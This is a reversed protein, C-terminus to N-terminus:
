QKKWILVLKKGFVKEFLDKKKNFAQEELTSDNETLCEVTIKKIGVKLNISNVIAQHSCDLGDAVRLLGALVKVKHVTAKDLYALNHNCQKPLGKRHYRAISAIIRKEQSPFSLRVDNLILKATKKHHKKTSKSLGIDHLTSACELWCREAAGLKHVDALGDFFQMALKTVQMSHETDPWYKQAIIKATKLIGRCDESSMKKKTQNEQSVSGLSIGRLLMQAFSEPLGKRRLINAAAKVDYDLRILEVKFPNFSLIAYATQPNGDGPRGVSGPNLFCARNAEKLFQEHSHGVIILDAEAKSALADLHYIQTDNYIHEEISEPSGHTVLMKKGAIEFKLEKPLLLLYSECTKTLEKKAFKVALNKERKNEIKKNGIVELDFNGIVSLVNREYLMKIVENPCAGFGISDGANLFVDVGRKEADHLVKELAHLNAHVDSIVGIKVDPNLFLKEAKKDGIRSEVETIEKLKDFFGNKQNEDWLNVFQIYQQKRKEKIYDLFDLLACEFNSIDIKKNIENKTKIKGIFKPIFDIWVECDHKEGLIDQYTKITEIEKKLKYEYLPAFFEMTYRLKKANIRMEHHKKNENELHVFKENSLFDDLRFCIHWHAKELVGTSDLSIPQATITEKCFSSIEQLVFTAKLKELGEVVSTQVKKRFDKHDVLLLNLWKKDQPKQKIYNEIFEIQVDLDRAQSLLCTVKKIQKLWKKFTKQPFCYQFLPMAARLRRSGVRTKHVCERDKNEIVGELNNDLGDLLDLLTQCGFQCYNSDKQRKASRNPAKMGFAETTFLGNKRTLSKKAKIM